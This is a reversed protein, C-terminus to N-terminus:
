NQKVFDTFSIGKNYSETNVYKLMFLLEKADVYGKRYSLTSGDEKLFYLTPLSRANYKSAVKEETDTDVEISIFNDNLYSIIDKNTFAGAEMKKCYKCWDAHFFVFAKKNLSKVLKIGADHTKFDIKESAQVQVPGLILVILLLVSFFIAQKQM